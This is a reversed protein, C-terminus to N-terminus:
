REVDQRVTRSALFFHLASWIYLCSLVSMAIRLGAASALRCATHAAAGAAAPSVGGPCSAVYNAGTFAHAAVHDSILGLIAPGGGFGVLGPVLFFIYAATGRMRPEVMNQLLAQSPTYYLFLAAGAITLSILAIIQNPLVFAGVYLPAACLLGLAPLWVYWRGDGKSLIDAIVGGPVTGGLMSLFSIGGFM